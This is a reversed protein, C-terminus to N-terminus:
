LDDVETVILAFAIKLSSGNQGFRVVLIGDREPM